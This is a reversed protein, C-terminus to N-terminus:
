KRSPRAVEPGCVNDVPRTVACFTAAQHKVVKSDKDLIVIKTGEDVAKDYAKTFNWTVYPIGSDTREVVPEQVVAWDYFEADNELTVTNKNEDTRM